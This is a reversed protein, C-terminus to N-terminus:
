KGQCLGISRLFFVAKKLDLGGYGAEVASGEGEALTLKRKDKFTYKLVPGGDTVIKISKGALVDSYESSCAPGSATAAFKQEIQQKTLKTYKIRHM